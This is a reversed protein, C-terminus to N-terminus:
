EWLRGEALRPRRLTAGLCFYNGVGARPQKKVNQPTNENKKALISM